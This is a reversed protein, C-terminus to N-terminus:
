QGTWVSYPAPSCQPGATSVLNEFLWRGVQPNLRLSGHNDWNWPGSQFRYWTGPITRGQVTWSQSHDFYYPQSTGLRYGLASDLGVMGDNDIEGDSTKEVYSSDNLRTRNPALYKAFLTDFLGVKEREWNTKLYYTPFLEPRTQPRSIDGPPIVTQFARCVWDLEPAEAPTEGWSDPGGPAMHLAYDLSMLGITEYQTKGKQRSMTHAVDLTSQNPDETFERGPSRSGLCYVPIGTGDTRLALHPALPGTNLGEWFGLKLHYTAESNAGLWAMVEARPSEMGVMEYFAQLGLPTQTLFDSIWTYQDALPSGEHPTALTILFLTRDRLFDAKAHETETLTLQGIPQTPNTVIYRGVNGGMSHGVLIIQPQTAPQQPLARYLKEIQSIATKAQQVLSQSGDRYTLLVSLPPVSNSAASKDGVPNAPVLFHDLPEDSRLAASEWNAATLETGSLTRLPGKTGLLASVFGYGWYQRAFKFQGISKEPHLQPKDTAGHLLVIVKPRSPQFFERSVTQGPTSLSVLGTLILLIGCFVYTRFM